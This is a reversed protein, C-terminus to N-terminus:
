VFKVYLFLFYKNHDILENNIRKDYVNIIMMMMMM